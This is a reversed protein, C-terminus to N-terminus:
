LGKSGNEQSRRDNAVRSFCRRANLIRAVHEPTCALHGRVKNSSTFGHKGSSFLNGLVKAAFCSEYAVSTVVFVGFPINQKCGFGEMLAEGFRASCRADHRVHGKQWLMAARTKNIKAGHTGCFLILGLDYLADTDFNSADRELRAIREENLIKSTWEGAHQAVIQGNTVLVRIANSVSRAEFLKKDIEVNTMPSRSNTKFWKEIASREYLQGEVTTVPDLILEHTIPCSFEAALLASTALQQDTQEAEADKGVESRNENLDSRLVKASHPPIETKRKSM